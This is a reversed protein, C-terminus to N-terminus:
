YNVRINDKGVIDILAQYTQLNLKIKKQKIIDEGLAPYKYGVTVTGTKQKKIINRVEEESRKSEEDDGNFIVLVASVRLLKQYSDLSIINNAIMETGFDNTRTVGTIFVISDEKLYDEIFDIKEKEFYVCRIEASMDEVTFIYFKSNDSKKRKVDVNKIIGAINVNRSKKKLEPKSVDDKNQEFDNETLEDNEDPLLDSIQTIEDQNLVEAYKDLPNGSAYYGIIDKEFKLKEEDTMEEDSLDIEMRIYNRKEEGLIDFITNRDKVEEKLFKAYKLFEPINELKSKRSGSFDDLAGSKILSELMKKECKQNVSMRYIFDDLDAFKGNKNREEIVLDASSGINKLGGIGFRIGEGSTSFDSESENISPPLVPIGMKKCKAIYGKIKDAQKGIYSNILATMYEERYHCALWATRVTHFSYAVAHSKNFSYKGFEKIDAWVKRATEEPIGNKVCGPINKEASGTVFYEEYENLLDEKKKATGKRITDSQGASFGAMERVLGMAQEQYLMIGNTSELQNKMHPDDFVVKSQDVICQEYADIYQAPGPRVLANCDSIRMFLKEGLAEAAKKREGEPLRMVKSYQENFDVLVGTVTDTFVDSEAQFVGTTKGDALFKYVELDTLPIDDYVIDINHNQKILDACEHAVGLTRLGLFDMKILGMSECEPGQIQACWIKEGKNQPNDMLILPTYNQGIAKDCLLVGCAHISRASKLGEIKIAYDIM